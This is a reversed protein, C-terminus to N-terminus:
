PTAGYASRDIRIRLNNMERFRIMKIENFSAQKAKGYYAAQDYDKLYEYCQELVGNWYCDVQETFLWNLSSSLSPTKAWYVFELPTSDIPAIKLYSGEITFARPTSVALLPWNPWETVFVDPAMYELPTKPTGTWTVREWGLYDAPLTCFGQPAQVSGGSSYTNTFTSNQLDISVGDNIVTIIWSGNAETTGAVNTVSVEQGTSLTSNSSITLRILGSGNNAAGTVTLAAPNSPVLITTTEERRERFLELSAESEFLTICDIIQNTMDSRALHDAIAAQFNAYTDLSM